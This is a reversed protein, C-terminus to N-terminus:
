GEGVETPPPDAKGVKEAGEETTGILRKMKSGGRPDEVDLKKLLL